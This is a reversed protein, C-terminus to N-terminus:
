TAGRRMVWFRGLRSALGEVQEEQCLVLGAVVVQHLDGGGGLQLAKVVLRADVPFVQGFM